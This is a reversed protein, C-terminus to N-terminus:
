MVCTVSGSCANGQTCTTEGKACIYNNCSNCIVQQTYCNAGCSWGPANGNICNNCSNDCNNCANCNECLDEKFKNTKLANTLDTFYSGLIKSNTKSINSINLRSQAENYLSLTIKVNKRGTNTIKSTITQTGHMNEGHEYDYIENIANIIPAWSNEYSIYENNSTCISINKNYTQQTECVTTGNNGELCTNCNYCYSNCNTCTLQKNGCPGSTEKTICTYCITGSM